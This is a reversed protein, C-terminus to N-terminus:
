EARPDSHVPYTQVSTLSYTVQVRCASNRDLLLVHRPVSYLGRYLGSVWHYRAYLQRLQLNAPIYAHQSPVVHFVCVCDPALLTETRIEHALLLVDSPDAYAFLTQFIAVDRQYRILVITPFLRLNGMLM